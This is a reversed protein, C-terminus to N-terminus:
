AWPSDDARSPLARQASVVARVREDLAVRRRIAEILGPDPTRQTLRSWGAESLGAANRAEKWDKALHAYAVRAAVESRENGELGVRGVAAAAAKWVAAPGLARLQEDSAPELPANGLGAASLAREEVDWRPLARAIAGPDFGPLRRAGVLDALCSGRWPAPHVPIHHHVTQTLVYPVLNQLHSRGDVERTRCPEMGVVKLRKTLTQSIAGAIRGVQERTGYCVLHLHEDVVCFLLLAGGGLRAVARVIALQVPPDVFWTGRRAAAMTIHWWLL